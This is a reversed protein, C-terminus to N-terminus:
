EGALRDLTMLINRLIIRNGHAVIAISKQGPRKWGNCAGCSLCSERRGGEASKPCIVENPLLADHARRVRFTRWGLKEAEAVDRACEVSAMCLFRYPQAQALRWQHTYGTHGVTYGLAWEWQAVPVVVPDGYSGMRLARGTLHRRLLTATAKPYNGAVYGHYVSILGHLPVVYCGRETFTTIGRREDHKIRGLFPCSGCVSGDKGTQMAKLPDIDTRM